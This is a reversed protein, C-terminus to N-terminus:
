RVKGLLRQTASREQWAGALETLGVSRLLPILSQPEPESGSPFAAKLLRELTTPELAERIAVTQRAEARAEDMRGSRALAKSLRYRTRWDHPMVELVKRFSAIAPTADGAIELLRRGELREYSVSNRSGVPWGALVQSAEAYYGQEFLMETLVRRAEASEPHRSVLERAEDSLRAVDIGLESADAFQRNLLWAKALPEGSETDSWRRLRERMEDPSMMTLIGFTATSLFSLSHRAEPRKLTMALTHAIADADGLARSLEIRLVWGDAGTVDRSSWRDLITSAQSPRDAALCARAWRVMDEASLAEPYDAAFADWAALVEIPKRTREAEAIRKRHDSQSRGSLMLLTLVLLIGGIVPLTAVRLRRSRKPARNRGDSRKKM